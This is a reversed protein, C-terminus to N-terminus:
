PNFTVIPAVLTISTDGTIALPGATTVVALNRVSVTTGAAIAAAVGAAINVDGTAIDTLNAATTTQDGAVLVTDEGGVVVTRDAGIQETDLGGVTLSRDGTARYFTDRNVQTTETGAVEKADNGV